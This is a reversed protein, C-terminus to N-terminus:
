MTMRRIRSATCAVALSAQAQYDNSLVALRRRLAPSAESRRRLAAASIEYVTGASRVEVGWACPADALFAALGTVGETGMDFTEATRGDKFTVTNVVLASALFAVTEVPSGQGILINGRAVHRESMDPLLCDLDAQDM